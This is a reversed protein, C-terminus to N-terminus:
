IQPEAASGDGLPPMLAASLFSRLEARLQRLGVPGPTWGVAALVRPETAIGTVTAYLLAALLRPDTRRVRGAAMAAELAEIGRDILPQILVRLREAHEDSLRGIEGILGLVGPRRVAPRFVATVVADVQALPDPRASRLAADIVTGLEDVASALVADILEDKSPYWYLVTQKRIGVERAIEDLSVAEVGRRGFLDLAAALIRQRTPVEAIPM